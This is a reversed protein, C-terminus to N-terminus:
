LTKPSILAAPAIAPGTNTLALAVFPSCFIAIAVIICDGCDKAVNTKPNTTNVFNLILAKGNTITATNTGIINTGSIKDLVTYLSM